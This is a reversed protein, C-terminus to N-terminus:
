HERAVKSIVRLRSNEFYEYELQLKHELWCIEKFYKVLIEETFFM